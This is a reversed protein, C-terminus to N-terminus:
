GASQPEEQEKKLWTQGVMYAKVGADTLKTQPKRMNLYSEFKDSYLTHPRLCQYMKSDAGWAFLMKRHVEKFDEVTFGSKLQIGVMYKIDKSTHRYKSGFVLNFDDIIQKTKNADKNKTETENGTEMHVSMHNDHSERIIKDKNSSPRGSKNNSRSECFSRRREAETRMRPNFYIGDKGKSFKKAVQCDLSGCVSIMHNEPIGGLQHQNCLLTIYQGKEEYSFFATGSIFDSTYFLVAPDKAMIIFFGSTSLGALSLSPSFM